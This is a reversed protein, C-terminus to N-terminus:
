VFTIHVLFLFEFTNLPFYFPCYYYRQFPFQAICSNLLPSRVAPTGFVDPMGTSGGRYLGAGSQLIQMTESADRAAQPDSLLLSLAAPAGTQAVTPRHITSKALEKIAGCAHAKTPSTGTRLLEVLWLLGNSSVTFILPLPHLSQSEIPSNPRSTFSDRLTVHMNSLTFLSRVSITKHERM